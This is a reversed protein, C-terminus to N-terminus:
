QLDEEEEEKSSQQKRLVTLGASFKKYTRRRKELWPYRLYRWSNLSMEM